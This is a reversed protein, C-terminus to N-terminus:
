WRLNGPNRWQKCAYLKVSEPKLQAGDVSVALRLLNERKYLSDYDEQAFAKM